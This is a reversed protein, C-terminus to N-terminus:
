VATRKNYTQWWATQTALVLALPISAARATIAGADLWISWLDFLSPVEKSKLYPKVRLDFEAPGMHCEIIGRSHLDPGFTDTVKAPLTVKSGDPYPVDYFPECQGNPLLWSPIHLHTKPRTMVIQGVHGTALSRVWVLKSGKTIEGTKGEEPYPEGPFVIDFDEDWGELFSHDRPSQFNIVIGSTMPRLQGKKDPKLFPVFEGNIMDGIELREKLVFEGKIRLASKITPNEGVFRAVGEKDFHAHM